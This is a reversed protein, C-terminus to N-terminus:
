SPEQPESTGSSQAPPFNVLVFGTLLKLALSRRAQDSPLASFRQREGDTFMSDYVVAANSRRGVDAAVGECWERVTRASIKGPGREPGVGFEVLTKAVEALAEKQPVGAQTLRAVTGAAHGRLAARVGTSTSRPVPKLMPSVTNNDLAMLADQLHLISLHLNEALPREFLAILRWTAGLAKIASSRGHGESRHFLESATRLDAFFFRLAVNLIDLDRETFAEPLSGKMRDIFELAADSTGPPKTEAM